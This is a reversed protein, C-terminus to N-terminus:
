SFIDGIKKEDMEECLWEFVEDQIGFMIDADEESSEHDYGLLHLWGHIFLYALEENTSMDHEKAQEIIKEVCFVLEGFSDEGAESEFSLVDTVYDKHRFEGNLAQMKKAGVFVLNLESKLPLQIKKELNRKILFGM